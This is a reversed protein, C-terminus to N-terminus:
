ESSQATDAEAVRLTGADSGAKLTVYAKKRMKGAFSYRGVRKNKGKSVVVRISVPTVAFLLRLAEKIQAKNAKPHVNIVLQQQTRNFAFAKTSVCPSTIVDYINLDM